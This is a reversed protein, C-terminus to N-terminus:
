KEEFAVDLKGQLSAFFEVLYTMSCYLVILVCDQVSCSEGLVLAVGQQV